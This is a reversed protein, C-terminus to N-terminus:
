KITYGVKTSNIFSSDEFKESIKKRLRYIHTEVTHTELESNFGWVEKQLNEINQPIKSNKLFLIIEVERETLKLNEKNDKILRSNLDISYKGILIDSQESYKKKLLAVNIKEIISYISDPFKNLTLQSKEGKIENNPNTLILYNSNKKKRFSFLHEEESFLYITFDLYNKLENLIKFLEPIKFILVNKKSM